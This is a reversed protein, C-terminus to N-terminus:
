LFKVYSNNLLHCILKTYISSVGRQEIQNQVRKVRSPQQRMTVKSNTGLLLVEAEITFIVKM